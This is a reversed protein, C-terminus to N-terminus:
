RKKKRRQRKRGHSVEENNGQTLQALKEPDVPKELRDIVLQMLVGIINSIVFYLALGSAFQTTLYAFMLPMMIQMSNNMSSTQPDTSPQAMLKQQLYMTGGVLIPMIYMYSSSDPVALNLWLFKSQLPVIPTYSALHYMTQGLKMLEVPTDALILTISQYLGIWIPFQILQLLCGSMPNVGLEKYLKQQEQVLKENNGAYKKQLKAMAPQIAAMRKTTRTQRIALPLTLARLIVTLVGIAIVFSRGLYTYLILLANAIPRLIVESWITNWGFTFVLVLVAGVGLWTLISKRLQRRDVQPRTANEM